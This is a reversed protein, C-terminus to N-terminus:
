KEQAMMAAGIAGAWRDDVAKVIKTKKRAQPSLVLKQIIERADPAFLPWAHVIGGGVVILEPEILNIL